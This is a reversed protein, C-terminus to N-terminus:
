LPWTSTVTSKTKPTSRGPNLAAAAGVTKLDKTNFIDRKEATMPWSLTTLSPNPLRRRIWLAWVWLKRQKSLLPFSITLTLRKSQSKRHSKNSSAHTVKRVLPPANQPTNQSTPTDHSHLQSPNSYTESTETTHDMPTHKGGLLRSVPLSQVMM